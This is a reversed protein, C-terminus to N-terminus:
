TTSYDKLLLRYENLIDTKSVFGLFHDNVDVVPLQWVDSEDLMKMVILINESPKVKYSPNSTVDAIRLEEVEKENSLFPLLNERSITGWYTGDEKLVAIFNETSNRFKALLTRGEAHITISFNKNRVCDDINIRMLLNRDHKSTFIKGEDALRKLDPNISSFSKNILFSMVSVIMLPIFLDYGSSSEAILFIATLPAYLAGAMVGAMGVLMLNTIPVNEFGLFSLTYGFWFGLLGGAILSPAFNGGNGGSHLTVSTAIAKFMVALALFVVVAIEPSTFYRFLSEHVLHDVQGFELLRISSYGEGFLPPFVICLVSLISGGILAKVMFNQKMTHFFGHIWQSVLLFYRAYLGTLIGLGIYFLINYYDFSDRAQFGFLVDENLIIKSLLSGCIAAIVLPIFDTFVLGVLLLEFAFMVGAIPANFAAAIGASAGAALLLTREKYDLRYRKSYNSGIASGTVAIPSELGASGGFGITIASQIMESYMRRAGVHSNNKAIDNLIIPIGKEENVQGKFFFKAVFATLTIGIIPLLAYVWLREEFHLDQEIFTHIKHVVTKLLVGALGATLGVLIGSLVLFQSRSFHSKLWFVLIEALNFKNFNYEQFAKKYKLFNVYLRKLRFKM